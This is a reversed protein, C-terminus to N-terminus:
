PPRPSSSPSRFSAIPTSVSRVESISQRRWGGTGASSHLLTAATTGNTRPKNTPSSSEAHSRSSAVTAKTAAATDPVSTANIRRGTKAVVKQQRAAPNMPSHTAERATSGGTSSQKRGGGSWTVLRQISAAISSAGLKAPPLKRKRAVTRAGSCSGSRMQPWVRIVIRSGGAPSTTPSRTRRWALKRRGRSKAFGLVYAYASPSARRPTQLVACALPAVMTRRSLSGRADRRSTSRCRM